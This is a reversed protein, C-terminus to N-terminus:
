LHYLLVPIVEPFLLAWAVVAAVLVWDFWPVAAPQKELRRLMSPWLDRGLDTEAPAIAKRLVTGVDEVDRENM